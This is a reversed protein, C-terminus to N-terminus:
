AWDFSNLMTAEVDDEDDLEDDLLLVDVVLPPHTADAKVAATRQKTGRSRLVVRETPLVDEPEPVLEDDEDDVLGLWLRLGVLLPAM